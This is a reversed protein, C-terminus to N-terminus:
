RGVTDAGGSSDGVGGGRTRIASPPTQALSASHALPNQVSPLHVSGGGKASVTGFQSRRATAGPSGKRGSRFSFLVVHANTYM